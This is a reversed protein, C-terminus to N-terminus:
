LSDDLRIITTRAQPYGSSYDVFVGSPDRQFFGWGDISGYGSTALFEYQDPLNYNSLEIRKAVGSYNVGNNSYIGSFNSLTYVDVAGVGGSYVIHSQRATGSEVALDFDSYRFDDALTGEAFLSASHGDLGLNYGSIGVHTTGIVSKDQSIYYSELSSIRRDMTLLPSYISIDLRDQYIGSKVINFDYNDRQLVLYLPYKGELKGPDSYGIKASIANPQIRWKGFMLETSTSYMPTWRRTVAHTTPSVAVMEVALTSANRAKFFLDGSFSDIGSFSYITDYGPITVGTTSILTAPNFRTWSSDSVKIGLGETLGDQMRIMKVDSYLHANTSHVGTFATVSQYNDQFAHVNGSTNGIGYTYVAYSRNVNFRLFRRTEGPAGGTFVTDDDFVWNLNGKDIGGYLASWDFVFSDNGSATNLNAVFRNLKYNAIHTTPQGSWEIHLYPCILYTNGNAFTSIVPRPRNFTSEGNATGLTGGFIAGPDFLLVDTKAGSILDVTELRIDFSDGLNGAGGGDTYNCYVTHYKTGNQAMSISNQAFALAMSNASTKVSTLTTRVSTENFIDYEIYKIFRPNGVDLYYFRFIMPATKIVALQLQAGVSGAVLSSVHTVHQPLHNIDYTVDMVKPRITGGSTEDWFAFYGHGTPTNDDIAFRDATFIAFSQQTTDFTQLEPAVLGKYALTTRLNIDDPVCAVGVNTYFTGRLQSHQFTTGLASNSLVGSAITMAEVYDNSGDNEIDWVLYNYNPSDIVGSLAPGSTIISYTNAITGDYPNVDLIWSRLGSIAVGSMITGINPIGSIPAQAFFSYHTPDLPDTDLLFDGRNVGSGNDVAYRIFNTDRDIICAKGMVGSYITPELQQGSYALYLGSIPIGSWPGDDEINYYINGSASVCALVGANVHLDTIYMDQELGSFYPYWGSSLFGSWTTLHKRWIGDGYTGVYVYGGFNFFGFLRPCREDLVLNTVLGDKSMSTGFTTVLGKGSFIKTKVAVVDGPLVNLAGAVTLHKEVTIRAFETLAQNALLFASSVNPINSNSIVITRKDRVDYNWKTNRSVDAFVWRGHTPDGSGWVVVRNRLMQDNKIVRIETIKNKGATAKVGAFSTTLKGIVATGNPRFTIYWGSMQLLMLIQDYATTLGLSTNNSLLNGSSTTLFVYSIGVEDLFKEIWYRSYSPYDVVYSDTIFYDSLRKSNDQATVIITSGPQGKSVQSVFYGGALKNNEYINIKDWPDFTGAYTIAVELELMGIGTCIKHERSYSITKSTINTGNHKVVVNM